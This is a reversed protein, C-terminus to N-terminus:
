LLEELKHSSRLSGDQPLQESTLRGKPVPNALKELSVSGQSKYLEQMCKCISSEPGLELQLFFHFLCSSRLLPDEELPVDLGASFPLHRPLICGPCHPALAIITLAVM